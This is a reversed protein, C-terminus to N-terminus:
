QPDLLWTLRLLTIQPLPLKAVRNMPTSDVYLIASNSSNEGTATDVLNIDAGGLLPYQIGVDFGLQLHNSIQFDGGLAFRTFFTRLGVSGQTVEVDGDIKFASVDAALGLYRYGMGALIFFSGNRPFFRLGVQTSFVKFSKSGGSIPLRLYGFEGFPRLNSSLGKRFEAGFQIPQPFTMSIQPSIRWEPSVSAPVETLGAGVLPQVELEQSIPPSIFPRNIIDNASAVLSFAGGGPVLCAYLVTLALHKIKDRNSISM